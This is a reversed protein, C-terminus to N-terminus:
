VFSRNVNIISGIVNYLADSERVLRVRYFYAPNGNGRRASRNQYQYKRMATQLNYIKLQNNNTHFRLVHLIESFSLLFVNDGDENDAAPAFVENLAEAEETPAEFYRNMLDINNIDEMTFPFMMGSRDAATKVEAWVRDIDIRSLANGDIDDIQFCLYRRNNSDRLFRSENVSGCFNAIRAHKRTMRAYRERYSTSSSSIISKLSNYDKGFITELQDDINIMFKDSLLQKVEFSSASTDIKGCYSYESLFPPTLRELFTTKRRGQAGILTFMVDNHKKGTGCLYCAQLWKFFYYEFLDRYNYAGIQIDLQSLHVCECLRRFERPEATDASSGVLRFYDQIANYDAIMSSGLLKEVRKEPARFGLIELQIVLDNFQKDEFPQWQKSEGNVELYEVINKLTNRRFIYNEDLYLRIKEIPQLERIAKKKDEDSAAEVPEPVMGTAEVPEAVPEDVKISPTASTKPM